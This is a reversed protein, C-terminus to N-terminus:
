SAVSEAGKAEGPTGVIQTGKEDEDQWAKLQALAQETPVLSYGCWRCTIRQDGPSYWLAAGCPAGAEGLAVCRGVDRGRPVVEQPDVISAVSRALERIDAAFVGADPWSVAVWPLHGILETVGDKLRAEVSRMERRRSRPHRRDQRIVDLWNEVVGVIGGPGRLDLVDEVVPLAGFAPKGGRGQGGSTGRALLPALGEYLAPLCGLRTVTAKTCGLCLYGGTEDPRECLGCQHNM